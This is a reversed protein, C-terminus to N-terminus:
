KVKEGTFIRAVSDIFILAGQEIVIALSDQSKYYAILSQGDENYMHIDELALVEDELSLVKAPISGMLINKDSQVTGSLTLIYVSFDSHSNLSLGDEFSVLIYTDFDGRYLIHCQPPEANLEHTFREKSKINIKFDGVQLERGIQASTLDGLTM